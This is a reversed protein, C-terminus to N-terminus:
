HIINSHLVNVRKIEDLSSVPKFDHRLSQLLARSNLFDAELGHLNFIPGHKILERIVEIYATGSAGGSSLALAVTNKL